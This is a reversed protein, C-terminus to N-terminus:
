KLRRRMILPLGFMLYFWTSMAGGGSSNVQPDNSVPLNCSSSHVPLTNLNAATLGIAINSLWGADDGYSLSGDKNYRWEIVHPGVGTLSVSTRAWDQAGSLANVKVNDVWLELFDWDPESCARWDFYVDQDTSLDFYAYLSSSQNDTINGSEFSLAGDTTVQQQTWGNNGSLSWRVSSPASANDFTVEAVVNANLSVTSVPVDVSDTTITLIDTFSGLTTSSAFEITVDCSADVSVKNGCDNSIVTFEPNTPASISFNLELVSFNQITLKNTVITNPLWSGFNIEPKVFYGDIISTIWAPYNSLRTYVGYSNAQACGYGWSVIGAQYWTFGGDNSYVLPGGSDGQCSDVGGEPLGACMMNSTIQGDLLNSDCVANSVYPLGVDRLIYPFLQSVSTVGDDEVTGGWGLTVLDDDINSVDVRAELDNAVSADIVNIPAISLVPTALKLLAIDNNTTSGDYNPHVIVHEIASYVGTSEGLNYEGVFAHLQNAPTTNGLEDVVCHAATLVWNQDILSAGCFQNNFLLSADSSYSLAVVWQWEAPASETGGVIRTEFNSEAASTQLSAFGFVAVVVLM